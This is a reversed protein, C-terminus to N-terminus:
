RGTAAILIIGVISAIIFLGWLTGTGTKESVKERSSVAMVFLAVGSAGGLLLLVVGALRLIEDNRMDTEQPQLEELCDPIKNQGVEL